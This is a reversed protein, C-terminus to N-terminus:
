QKIVKYIRSDERSHISFYYIGPEYGSLNFQEQDQSSDIKKIQKGLANYLYITSNSIGDLYVIETFPNPYILWDQDNLESIITTNDVVLFQGMMGDDEHSLMHCHYMYPTDDNAFDDFKTIFRVTGFMPPVLVVDKRGRMNEPPVNGNIDLVYFQVDHIHFPHSIATMNTLEWIEINGLPVEYNIVDLDFVQGNIEFPGNVMGGPGMIVPQFLLNRTANVDSELYPKNTILKSPVILIPNSLPEIINIQFISFDNGNLPNNSYGIIGGMPMASPNGAGYIGRSLESAFSMLQISQGQLNSLDLLIEAREGPSLVLRTLSVPEDLLGGDTAIQTFVQDNELGLNYVRETSGNLLRLRIIQAPADLYPDLTGNCLIVNDSSTNWMLQKDSDFARSQIVIPFDDVGYTRPLNLQAEEDDRVIIFGAAGRTVQEETYEHLHPHYWYTAAHDLVTFHPTWQEGPNIVTHPGGDNDSSVHLGHWHLTTPQSLSNTVQITVDDGKNFLLTPGLIDQNYGISNTQFGSYIEVEGAQLELDIQQGSLTDPIYLQNQSTGIVASLFLIIYVPAKM